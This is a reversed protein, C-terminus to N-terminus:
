SFVGTGVTCSSPDAGSGTRVIQVLPFTNSGRMRGARPRTMIDVLRDMFLCSMRSLVSPTYKRGPAEVVYSARSNEM